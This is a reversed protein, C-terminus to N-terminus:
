VELKIVAKTFELPEDTHFVAKHGDWPFCVYVMGATMKMFHETDATYKEVDREYNYPIIVELNSLDELAAYEAGELVVQVDVFKRHAEFQTDESAKTQGSQFFVVGGDFPYREGAKWNEKHEEMAELATSIKPLISQYRALREVRDIIM